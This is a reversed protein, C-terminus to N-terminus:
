KGLYAHGLFEILENSGNGLLLTEPKVGLKESLKNKLYFGGGDPYRHMQNAAINMAEIAKPSPGLENENSAVKIIEDLDDFGLERAVEAMPRGPQYVPVNSIWDNPKM